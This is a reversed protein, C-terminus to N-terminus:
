APRLAEALARVTQPIRGYDDVTDVIDAAANLDGPVWEVQVGQRSLWWLVFRRTM